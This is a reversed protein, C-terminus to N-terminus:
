REDGKNFAKVIAQDIPNNPDLKGFPYYEKPGELERVRAEAAEARATVKDLQELLRPTFEFETAQLRILRGYYNSNDREEYSKLDSRLLALEEESLPESM